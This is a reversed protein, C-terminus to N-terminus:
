KWLLKFFNKFESSKFVKKLTNMEIEDCILCSNLTKFNNKTINKLLKIKRIPIAPVGYYIFNKKCNKNVYSGGGWLQIKMLVLM